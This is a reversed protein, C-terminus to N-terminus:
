LISAYLSGISFLLWIWDTGLMDDHYVPKRPPRRLWRHTRLYEEREDEPTQNEADPDFPTSQIEIAMSLADLLDDHRSKPYAMIEDELETMNSKRIFVKGQEFYPQLARIRMEKSTVTHKIEQIPLFVGAKAMARDLEWKLVKQFGNVEVGFAHPHWKQYMLLMAKIVDFPKFHARVYDLVWFNNQTDIGVIPIATYDASKKESIAPDLTCIIYLKKPVEDFNNYYNINRFYADEPNVIRNLYQNNFLYSGMKNRREELFDSTLRQPFFLDKGPIPFSVSETKVASEIYIQTKKSEDTVKEERDIIYQYLDRFHWHTGIIIQGGGPELISLLLKYHDIVKQIQESTGTNKDSHLDDCFIYDYHMGVKVTDVSMIDVSPEKHIETRKAVTISEDLWGRKAVFNGYLLRLERNFEFQERIEKLYKKSNEYTESDICIRLNPNNILLQITRSITVLSTKFTGRPLLLLKELHTIDQVIKCLKGHVSKEVATYGLIKKSLYLLDTAGRKAKVTRLLTLLKEKSTALKM